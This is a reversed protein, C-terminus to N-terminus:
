RCDRACGAHGSRSAHTLLAVPEAAMSTFGQSEAARKMSLVVVAVRAQRRVIGAPSM